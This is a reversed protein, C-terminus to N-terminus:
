RITLRHWKEASLVSGHVVFGCFHLDWHFNIGADIKFEVGLKIDAFQFNNRCKRRCYAVPDGGLHCAMFDDKRGSKWGTLWWRDLSRLAGIGSTIFPTLSM